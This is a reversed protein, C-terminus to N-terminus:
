ISGNQARYVAVAGASPFSRGYQQEEISAGSRRSRCLGLVERPLGDKNERLGRFGFLSTQNFTTWTVNPDLKWTMGECWGLAHLDALGWSEDESTMKDEYLINGSASGGGTARGSVIRPSPCSGCLPDLADDLGAKFGLRFPIICHRELTALAAACLKSASGACTM